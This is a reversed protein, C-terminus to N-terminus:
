KETSGCALTLKESIIETDICDNGDTDIYKYTKLKGSVVVQSGKKLNKFAFEAQKGFVFVSYSENIVLNLKTFAIDNSTLSLVPDAGLSDCLIVKSATSM